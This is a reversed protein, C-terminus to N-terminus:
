VRLGRLVLKVAKGLDRKYAALTMDDSAILRQSHALDIDFLLGAVESADCGADIEGRTQYTRVLETLTALLRENLEAFHRAFPQDASHITSALVQRWAERDLVKLSERTMTVLADTLGEAAPLEPDQARKKLRGLYREDTAAVLALLMDGKSPFYNFVTAPSLGAGAAIQEVKTNAFGQEHFLTNAIELISRRRADKQRERLGTM